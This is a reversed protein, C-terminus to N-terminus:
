RTIWRTIEEETPTKPPLQLFFGDTDLADIVNSVDVQALKRGASLVLDMVLLPEGFIQQLEDPLDPFSINEALYLYTEPKKESRYIRCNM